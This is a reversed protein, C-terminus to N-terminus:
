KSQGKLAEVKSALHDRVIGGLHVMTATGFFSVTTTKMLDVMEGGSIYGKIRFFAGLGLLIAMVATKNVDSFVEIFDTLQQTM